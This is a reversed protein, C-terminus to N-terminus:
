GEPKKQFHSTVSFGQGQPCTMPLQDGEEGVMEQSLTFVPCFKTALCWSIILSLELVPELLYYQNMM